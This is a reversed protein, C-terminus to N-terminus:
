VNSGAPAVSARVASPRVSLAVSRSPWSVLLSAFHMPIPRPRLLSSAFFLRMRMSSLATTLTATLWGALCRAQRRPCSLSHPGALSM